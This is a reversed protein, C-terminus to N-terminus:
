HGFFAKKLASFCFDTREWVFGDDGPVYEIEDGYFLKDGGIKRLTDYQALFQTVGHHRIYELHKISNEWPIPTGAFKKGDGDYGKGKPDPKAAGGHGKFCCFSSSAHLTFRTHVL